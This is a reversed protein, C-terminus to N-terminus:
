CIEAVGSDKRDCLPAQRQMSDQVSQAVDDNEVKLVTLVWRGMNVPARLDRENLGVLWRTMACALWPMVM